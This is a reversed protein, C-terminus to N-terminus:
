IQFLAKDMVTVSRSHESPQRFQPSGSLGAPLHLSHHRGAV